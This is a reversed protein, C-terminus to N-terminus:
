PLQVTEGETVGALVEFALPDGQGLKLDRQEMRRGTIVRTSPRDQDWQVALRPIRLAAPNSYATIMIDTSMGPRLDPDPTELRVVIRFYKEWNPYGPRALAMASIHEVRGALRRGPFALPRLSAPAGPQIGALDAEPIFGEAMLDDPNPIFMFPQNQFLTDGVRAPRLDGAISVPQFVVVGAAPALVNAQALQAVTDALQDTLLEHQAKARALRAPHLHDRLLELRRELQDRRELLGQIRWELQRLEQPSILNRTVLDRSDELFKSEIEYELRAHTAESQLQQAEMPFEAEELARREAASRAVEKELRGRERTLQASDFRAIPDGPAVVEGEAALEVLTASGPMPSRITEVKRATFVGDLPISVTLPGREILATRPATATARGVPFRLTAAALAVLM